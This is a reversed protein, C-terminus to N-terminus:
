WVKREKLELPSCCVSGVFSLNQHVANTQQIKNLNDQLFNLSFKLQILYAKRNQSKISEVEVLNIKNLSM